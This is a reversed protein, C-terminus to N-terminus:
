LTYLKDVPTVEKTYTAKYLHYDYEFKTVNSICFIWILM